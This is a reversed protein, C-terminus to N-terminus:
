DGLGFVLITSGAAVGIMEKGDFRYAMPSAKWNANTQFTWLVRGTTADAAVFAGSDECFFVLGSATALTGGWSDASGIQPVEWKMAGTQLDLARLIRVPKKSPDIRQAGGLFERGLVFEEPHKTYISCKEVTQFYFLGTGPNYSPSFWNTAGDQSPCVRTGDASPEQGHVKIPKGDPGIGTAWTLENIFQKALLIKGSTRDLVYFFGNRNGQVLLKRPQGQWDADIVLPTEASDWDWLDHPTSQFYWKLKGTSPNLAVICDSYLDDGGREDGNYDEGPNGTPWFLTDTEADYVGTFWAVAGGHDIGKGKWTESGPEGPTPVTWFRWAEKGTSQDFAAILGRAGEEGGATGSVVLNGVTLPASTASYNKHWDAIESDWVLEGTARKLAILHANDTVMFVKDGGLAVGRNIGGAGGGVLGQTREQQYHWIARGSGADLAYCENGSTVYMVGDAVVPTGELSFVNPVTFMWRPVLRKVNSKDIQILRTYRNGGIDGNYTAWDLESTVERFKGGEEKRLLRIRDDDTRMQADEFSENLILGTLTQGNTLKASLRYPQFGLLHPRLSRLFAILKPMDADSVNNAPMRGPVGRLVTNRVQEDSLRRLRFTVNPGLEGGNGDSGHCGSCRNEFTERGVTDQACLAVAATLTLWSGAICRFAKKM